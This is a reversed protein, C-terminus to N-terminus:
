LYWTHEGAMITREMPPEGPTNLSSSTVYFLHFFPQLIFQSTLLAISPNPFSNHRLHLSPFTPSHASSMIIHNNKFPLHRTPGMNWLYQYFILHKSNRSIQFWQQSFLSSKISLNGLLHCHLKFEYLLEYMPKGSRMITWTTSTARHSYQARSSLHREHYIPNSSSMITWTASTARHSCQVRGSLYRGHILFFRMRSQQPEIYWYFSWEWFLFWHYDRYSRATLAVILM